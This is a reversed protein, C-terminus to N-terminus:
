GMARVELCQTAKAQLPLTKRRREDWSNYHLVMTARIPRSETSKCSNREVPLIYGKSRAAWTDDGETRTRRTASDPRQAWPRVLSGLNPAGGAIRNSQAPEGDGGGSLSPLSRSLLLELLFSAVRRTPAFFFRSYTSRFFEVHQSNRDGTRRGLEGGASNAREEHATSNFRKPCPRMPSALNSATSTIGTAEFTWKMAGSWGDCLAPGRGKSGVKDADLPAPRCSRLFLSPSPIRCEIANTQCSAATRSALSSHSRAPGNSRPAVPGVEKREVEKNICLALRMTARLVNSETNRGHGKRKACSSREVAGCLIRKSRGNWRNAASDLQELM